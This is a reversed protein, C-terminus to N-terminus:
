LTVGPDKLDEATLSPLVRADVDNDRFAPVYRELGLGQLWAAVDMRHDEAGLLPIRTMSSSIGSGKSRGATARLFTLAAKSPPRIVDSPPTISRASASRRRPMASWRARTIGSSRSESRTTWRSGSIRRARIKAM